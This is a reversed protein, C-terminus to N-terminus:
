SALAIRQIAEFACYLALDRAKTVSGPAEIEPGMSEATEGIAPAFRACFQGLQELRDTARDYDTRAPASEQAKAESSM